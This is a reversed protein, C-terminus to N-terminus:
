SANLNVTELLRFYPHLRPNQSPDFSTYLQQLRTDFVNLHPLFLISGIVGKGIM